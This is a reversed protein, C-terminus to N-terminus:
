KRKWFSNKKQFNGQILGARAAGEQIAPVFHAAFGILAETFPALEEIKKEKYHWVLIDNPKDSNVAQAAVHPDVVPIIGNPSLAMDIEDDALAQQLMKHAAKFDGGVVMNYCLKVRSSVFAMANSRGTSSALTSVMRSIWRRTEALDPIEPKIVIAISEAARLAARHVPHAPNIGVDMIVVGGSAVGAEYLGTIIRNILEENQLAQDGLDDTVLGPLVKLTPLEEVQTFANLYQGGASVVAMIDDQKGSQAAVRRILGILTTKVQQLRLHYQMSGANGDADVLYTTIGSLAYAVALNVAITTKGAGGKPSTIAIKRASMGAQLKAATDGGLVVRRYVDDGSIGGSDARRLTDLLKQMDASNPPYAFTPVHSSAAWAAIGDEAGAVVLLLKGREAAKVLSETQISAEPSVLILAKFDFLDIHAPQFVAMQAEVSHGQENLQVNIQSTINGAGILLIRM